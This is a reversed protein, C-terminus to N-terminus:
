ADGPGRGVGRDGAALGGQKDQQMTEYHEHKRERAVDLATYFPNEEAQMESSEDDVLVEKTGLASMALAVTADVKKPTYEKMIRIGRESTKAMANTVHEKLEPDGYHALNGGIILDHLHKDSQVRRTTQPFEVMNVGAKTCMEAIAAMQYPDYYCAAVNYEQHLRVIEPGITETLKIPEGPEPYWISSCVHDVRRLEKNWTTGELAACDDKTAADAGLVIPRKDGPSLARLKEDLLKDWQEEKCFSDTNKVRRNAWVRLYENERGRFARRQEGLYEPTHWPQRPVHSWFLFTRGAAWCAPKGDGDEIHELGAVPQGGELVSDILDHWFNSQGVFGQYGTFLVTSNPRTPVPGFETMLRLGGEHVIGWPEDVTALSHNSGAEGRYDTAIARITSGNSLRMESGITTYDGAKLLPNKELSGLIYRWTRSRAGEFDNAIVYQEGPVDAFLAFYLHVMAALETKGSKKPESWLIRSYPLVGDGPPFLHRLIAAQYPQWTALTPKQKDYLYFGGPSTAWRIIDPRGKSSAKTQAM